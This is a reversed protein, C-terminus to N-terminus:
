RLRVTKRTLTESEGELRYFYVGASTARGEDDRGDWHTVFRGSPVVGDVLTKVVRGSVDFVRLKVPMEKPAAYRISTGNVFPNPVNQELAFSFTAGALDGVGTQGPGAEGYVSTRANNQGLTPWPMAAPTAPGSFNIVNVSGDYSAFAVELDGNGDFDGAAATSYIELNTHLPFGSMLAGTHHFGYFNGNHNGVFIEFDSDGDVNAIIPSATMRQKALPATPDPTAFVGSGQLFGTGNHNFAYIKGDVCGVVVELQADGDLNALAPAAHITDPLTFFVGGALYNSGDHNFCWIKKDISTALIEKNGDMDLDGIVPGRKFDSGAGRPFGSVRAGTPTIVYLSDNWSTFIIERTGDGALDAVGITGWIRASADGPPCTFLLGNGGILPTGDHNFGYVKGHDSGFFFELRGDRDVDAITAASRIEEGNGPLDILIPNGGFHATGDNKVVYFRTDQSGFLVELDDDQDLDALGPSGWFKEAATFPWGARQSTDDEYVYMKFDQSGVYLEGEGSNDADAIALSSFINSNASTPWGSLQAVATWAQLPATHVSENGSSDVAAAKYYFTAGLALGDDVFRAGSRLLEFSAKSYPGGISSSRYVNYGALDAESNPTWYVQIETPTSTFLMGTPTAPKVFDITKVTTRSMSDTLTLTVSTGSGNNITFLYGNAGTDQGLPSIDGYADSPDVITIGAGATLSGDVSIATGLGRNLVTPTIQVTEGVEAVGDGDGNAPPIGDNFGHVIAELSPGSFVLPVIDSWPGGNSATFSLSAYGVQGDRATSAVDFTITGNATAGAAINGLSAGGSVISLKTNDALAFDIEDIHDRRHTWGNFTITDQPGNVSLADTGNELELASTSLVKGNTTV